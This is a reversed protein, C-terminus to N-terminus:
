YGLIRGIVANSLMFGQRTLRIGKEDATYYDTPIKKCRKLITEAEVGFRECEKFSLGESLRLKLM